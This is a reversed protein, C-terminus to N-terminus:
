RGAIWYHHIFYLERLLFEAKSRLSRHRSTPTPSPQAAMGLDKAMTLARKMHLPDSVILATRLKQRQMLKRAQVLNQRTTRSSTETLIAARPVGQRLLYAQAVQSEARGAGEGFGGTLVLRRVRQARYLRLGHKIREEFVPSPRNGYVAAGLVIACDAPGNHSRTGFIAISAAVGM